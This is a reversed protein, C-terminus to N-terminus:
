PQPPDSSRIEDPRATARRFQRQPPYRAFSARHRDTGAIRCAEAIASCVEKESGQHHHLRQGWVDIGRQCRRAAGTLSGGSRAGMSSRARPSRRWKRLWSSRALSTNQFREGAEDCLAEPDRSRIRRTQPRGGARAREHACVHDRPHDPLLSNADDQRSLLAILAKDEGVPVRPLRGIRRYATGTTGLSVGPNHRSSAM